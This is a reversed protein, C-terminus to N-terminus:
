DKYFNGGKREIVELMSKRVHKSIRVCYEPTIKAEWVRHVVERIEDATLAGARSVAQEMTKCVGADLHSMDPAKGAAIDVGGDFAAQM